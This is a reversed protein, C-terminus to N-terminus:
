KEGLQSKLKEVEASLNQIANVMIPLLNSEKLKLSEPDERDVLVPNEGELALIDQALFGYRTIGDAPGERGGVKFQYETPKLANVFDLGHPVPAFATKDREDSVVTWAVQV